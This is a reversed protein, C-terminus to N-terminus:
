LIKEYLGGTEEHEPIDNLQNEMKWYVRNIQPASIDYKVAVSQQTCGEKIACWICINRDQIKM